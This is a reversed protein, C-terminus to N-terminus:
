TGIQTLSSAQDTNEKPPDNVVDMDHIWRFPFTGLGPALRGGFHLAKLVLNRPLRLPFHYIWGQRSSALAVKRVRSERVKRFEDAASTFEQHISLKHSMVWADELALSGGQALFPLVPHLADGIIAVRESNWNKAVGASGLAWRSVSDVNSLLEGFRGGFDAFEGLLGKFDSILPAHYEIPHKTRLVAVLNISAGSDPRYAVLHRNPGVVLSVTGANIAGGGGASITARWAVHTARIPPENPNLLERASSHLGDAGILRSTAHSSGCSLRCFVTGGSETLGVVKRGRLIEVGASQAALALLRVLENRLLLMTPFESDGHRSLDIGALLRGSLHDRVEVGTAEAGIERVQDFLGLAALVRMGNPTIQIGTGRGDSGELQELVTVRKGSRALLLAVALGALGAGLVTIKGGHGSM